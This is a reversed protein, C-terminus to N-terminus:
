NRGQTGAKVEKSSQSHHPLTLWFLDKGGGLQKHDHYKVVGM